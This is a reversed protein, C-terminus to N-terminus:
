GSDAVRVADAGATLAAAMPRGTGIGGAAVLPLEVVERMEELLPLLGVTGRVHGGAEVGQVVLLDCGADRAALADDVSGVQWGVLAGGGHAAEVLRADPEGWFFEVLASRAASDELADRDLFPVLFNVGVSLAEPVQDLHSALAAAGITGTPMGLGGAASVALALDPTAFGGMGAQQLPHVCGFMATFRTEIAM